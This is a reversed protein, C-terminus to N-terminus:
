QVIQFLYKYGYVLRGVEGAEVKEGFGFDEVGKLLGAIVRCKM